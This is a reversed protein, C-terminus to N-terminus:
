GLIGTEPDKPSDVTTAVSTSTVGGEPTSTVTTTSKDKLDFVHAENIGVVTTDPLNISSNSNLTQAFALAIQKRQEDSSKPYLQAVMRVAIKGNNIALWGKILNAILTGFIGVLIAIASGVAILIPDVLNQWNM